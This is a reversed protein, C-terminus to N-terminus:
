IEVAKFKSIEIIECFIRMLEPDHKEGTEKDMIAIIQQHARTNCYVRTMAMADYSDIISIIRDCIPINDGSLGDPYGMGNYHEHHHRIVRAVQQSYNLETSAMIKEGIESHQKILEWEEEDLKGPKLLVYDPIGIKGIDHFLAAIRLTHTENKTLGCRKGMEEALGQVRESHLRTLLDRYGLAAILAKTYKHLANFIQEELEM